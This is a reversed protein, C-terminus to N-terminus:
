SIPFSLCLSPTVQRTDFPMDAPLPDSPLGQMHCSMSQDEEQRQERGAGNVASGQWAGSRCPLGFSWSHNQGAWERGGVKVAGEVWSM